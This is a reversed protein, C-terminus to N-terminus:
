GKSRSDPSKGWRSDSLKRGDDTPDPDSATEDVETFEADIIPGGQSRGPTHGPSPRGGPRIEEGDIVIRTHGSHAIRAAIMRRLLHRVAPVFLLLGLADTFFGPTLLCMGALLLCLGDFLEERPMEGRDMQARARSMTAMGQMRLLLTGAVATAITLAITPFVGIRSGVEIFIAIELIPIGIFAILLVIAM